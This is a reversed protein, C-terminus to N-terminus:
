SDLRHQRLLERISAAEWKMELRAQDIEALVRRYRRWAVGVLAAAAACVGAAVVLLPRSFWFGAYGLLLADLMLFAVAFAPLLRSPPKM